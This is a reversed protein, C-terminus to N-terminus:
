VSAVTEEYNEETSEEVDGSEESLEDVIEESGEETTEESVVGDNEIQTLVEIAGVVKTYITTLENLRKQILQGKESLDKVQLEINGKQETLNSLVETNDLAM